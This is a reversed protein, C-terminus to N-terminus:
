GGGDPPPNAGDWGGAVMELDDDTLEGEELTTVEDPTVDYGRGSAWQARGVPDEPLSWFADAFALDADLSARLRDLEAMSM